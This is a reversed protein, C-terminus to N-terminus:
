TEQQQEQLAVFEEPTMNEILKFFSVDLEQTEGSPLHLELIRQRDFSTLVLLVDAGSQTARPQHTTGIPEFAVHGAPITGGEYFWEGSLTHAVATCHHTHTSHVSGPGFRQIYVVQGLVEDVHLIKMFDGTNLVPLWPKEDFSYIFSGDDLKAM